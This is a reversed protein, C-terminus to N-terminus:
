KKEPYAELAHSLIKLADILDNKKLVYAIRIENKGANKTAYFGSAPAVMVTKNEMSFESLLWEAFRDTDKVPLKIVTYFAGEPKHVTVGRMKKLEEYLINRRTEFERIISKLYKTMNKFLAVAGIQDMTPPCLRAQAFKLVTRMIERNRSVLFGIRAGCASFRKSISDTVIVREEIEPISLASIHQKGDYIFERYVEDAILFLDHKKVVKKILYMEEESMTTGTPNNPNCLLIAKTKSTIYSEITKQPPIRFGKEVDLKIPVLKVSTMGAFGNYNTYFPEFVLIEDGPDAVALFTFLLAESGGTTIWVNDLDIEIGYFAFYDVIALRLEVIGGSPGYSLVPEKFRKIADFFEKPTPIDPQGINLHYIHIGRKKAEDALPALKRIPSPPMRKGRESIKM